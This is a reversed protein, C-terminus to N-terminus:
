LETDQHPGLTSQPCGSKEIMPERDLAARGLVCFRVSDSALHWTSPCHSCSSSNKFADVTLAVKGM